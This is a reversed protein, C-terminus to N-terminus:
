LSLLLFLTPTEKSLLTHNLIINAYKVWFAKQVCLLTKRATKEITKLMITNGCVYVLCKKLSLNRITLKVEFSNTFTM